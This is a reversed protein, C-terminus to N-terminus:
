IAFETDLIADGLIEVVPRARQLFTRWLQQVAEARAEGAAFAARDPTQLLGGCNSRRWCGYLARVKQEPEAAAAWAKKLARLRGGARARAPRQSADQAAGQGRGDMGEGTATPIHRGARRADM